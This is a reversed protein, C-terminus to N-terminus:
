DYTGVCVWVSAVQLDLRLVLSGSLLSNEDYFCTLINFIIYIDLNETVFCKRQISAQVIYSYMKDWQM